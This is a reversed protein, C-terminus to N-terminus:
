EVFNPNRKHLKNGLLFHSFKSICISKLHSKYILSLGM